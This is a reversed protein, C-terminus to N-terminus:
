FFLLGVVLRHVGLSGVVGLVGGVLFVGVFVRMAANLPYQKM